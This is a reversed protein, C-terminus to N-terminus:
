PDEKSVVVSKWISRLRDELWGVHSPAFRLAVAHFFEERTPVDVTVPAPPVLNRYEYGDSAMSGPPRESPRVAQCKSCRRIHRGIVIGPCACRWHRRDYWRTPADEFDDPQGLIIHLTPM